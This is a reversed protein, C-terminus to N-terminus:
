RAGARPDRGRVGACEGGSSDANAARVHNLRAGDDNHSSSPGVGGQWTASPSLRSIDKQFPPQWGRWRSMRFEFVGAVRRQNALEEVAGVAAKGVARREM